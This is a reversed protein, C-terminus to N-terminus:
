KRPRQLGIPRATCDGNMLFQRFMYHGCKLINVSANFDRNVINVRCNSNFCKKLAWTKKVWEKLGPIDTGTKIEDVVTCTTRAVERKGTRVIPIQKCSINELSKEHCCYCSQSTNYEDIMIVLGNKNREVAELLKAHPSSMSGKISKM